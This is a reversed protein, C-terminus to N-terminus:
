HLIKNFFNSEYKKCHMEKERALTVFAARQTQALCSLCETWYLIEFSSTKNSEHNLGYQNGIQAWEIRWPGQGSGPGGM